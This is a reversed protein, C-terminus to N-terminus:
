AGGEIEAFAVLPVVGSAPQTAGLYVAHEPVHSWGGQVVHITSRYPQLSVTPDEELLIWM